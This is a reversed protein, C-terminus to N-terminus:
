FTDLCPNGLLSLNVVGEIVLGDDLSQVSISVVQVQKCPCSSVSEWRSLLVSARAHIQKCM